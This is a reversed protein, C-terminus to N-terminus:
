QVPETWRMVARPFPTWAGMRIGAFRLANGTWSNCTAVMDYRGRATYFADNGYYGRYRPGDGDLTAKIYAALRRYEAPRVIIQGVGIQATPRPIHDVHLLTESSGFAAAIVTSPKLDSWTPTELYFGKDGWGVAVHDFAAYRPDALAAPTFTERWDVGAAVKPMVISTHVGNSEIFLTIGRDPSSWSANTPILGGVIGAMPYALIILVLVSAAIRLRWARRKPREPQM